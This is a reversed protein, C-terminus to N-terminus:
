NNRGITWNLVGQENVQLMLVRGDSDDPSTQPQFILREPEAEDLQVQLRFQGSGTLFSEVTQREGSEIAFTGSRHNEVARATEPGDVVKVSVLHPLDHDNQVILTGPPPSDDVLSCGAIGVTGVVSVRRTFSRRSFEM